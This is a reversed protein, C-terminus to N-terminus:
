QILSDWSNLKTQRSHLVRVEMKYNNGVQDCEMKHKVHKLQSVGGEELSSVMLLSSLWGTSVM